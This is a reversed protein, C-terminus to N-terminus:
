TGHQGGEQPPLSHAQVNPWELEDKARWHLSNGFRADLHPLAELLLRRLRLMHARTVGFNQEHPCDSIAHDGTEGCFHCRPASGHPAALPPAEDNTDSM